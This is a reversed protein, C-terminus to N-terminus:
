RPGRAAAVDAESETRGVPRNVPRAPDAGRGHTMEHRVRLDIFEGRLEDIRKFAINVKKDYTDDLEALKADRKDVEVKIDSRFTAETRNAREEVIKEISWKLLTFVGLNGLLGIAGVVTAVLMAPSVDTAPDHGHTPPEALLAAACYLGLGGILVYLVQPALRRFRTM